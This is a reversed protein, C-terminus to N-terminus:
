PRTVVYVGRRIKEVKVTDGIMFYEPESVPPEPEPDPEPTTDGVFLRPEPTYQGINKEDTWKLQGIPLGALTVDVSYIGAAEKYSGKVVTYDGYQDMWAEVLPVMPKPDSSNVSGYTPHWRHFTWGTYTYPQGEYEDRILYYYVRDIGSAQAILSNRIALLGVSESLSFGEQETARQKIGEPRPDDNWGTETILIGQIGYLEKISDMSEYLLHAQVSEASAGTDAGQTQGMGGARHYRHFSIYWDYRPAMDLQRCGEKYGEIFDLLYEKTAGLFSPMILRADPSALRANYVCAAFKVGSNYGTLVVGGHWPFNDENGAQFGWITNLGSKPVETL